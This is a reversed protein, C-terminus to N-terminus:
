GRFVNGAFGAKSGLEEEIRLLQNYKAIRESRSLSGTKIQGTALAVSLDAITTDETEGSRHSIVSNWDNDKALKIADFTETLSGIQNVKILIANAAKLDIGKQLFNVNTVLLDDGVIQVKDGAQKTFEVWGDWDNQDLVDEVSVFPYDNILEVLWEIMGDTDLVKDETKLHYRADKYFESAAADIGFAVDKGVEYGAKEIAHILLDLAEKNGNKVRPAFGGEDGVTTEYGNAKLVGKLQMFVEAGIQLAHAFSEAGIPLIMFEQIDTAFDAHRGGNIVNMMPLPLLLPKSVDAIEHLYQYLPLRPANSAAKAVALSVALIANAGLNEKTETGDLKIMMEDIERQNFVNAGLIADKIKTNVNNVAKLVGKGGYANPDDDRLELAEHEGTSAGSPVIARGRVDDELTVDCEVTPNGRSDLVQRAHIDIIKM